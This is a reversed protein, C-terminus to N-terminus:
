KKVIKRTFIKKNTKIRFLYIGSEFHSMDIQMKDAESTCFVVKGTIDKVSVSVTNPIVALNIIGTTPNPYLLIESGNNEIVGVYNQIEVEFGCDDIVQNSADMIQWLVAYTGPSLVEGALTESNNFDNVITLPENCKNYITDLDFEDGIVTYTNFNDATRVQNEVCQVSAQLQNLNAAETILEFNNKDYVLCRFGNGFMDASVNTITLQAKDTGSYITNNSIDAFGSGTNVQWQYVEVGTSIVSFYAKDGECAYQEFPNILIRFQFNEAWYLNESPWTGVVIDNYGDNNIDGTEVTNPDYILVPPRTIFTEASNINDSYYVRDVTRSATIIEIDNDNDLDGITIDNCGGYVDIFHNQFTSNQNNELWNLSYDPTYIIDVYNDNNLDSSILEHAYGHQNDIIVEPLFNGTGDNQLYAIDGILSYVIDPDNDNDTDNFCLGYFNSNAIVSKAFSGQGDTNEFIVIENDSAFGVLLDLDGDGDTDSFDIDIPGHGQNDIMILPGFDGNGDTNEFWFLKDALADAVFLDKDNDSDIDVLSIEFINSGNEYLVIEDGFSQGSNQNEVLCIFQGDTYFVDNNGDNNIDCIAMSWTSRNSNIHHVVFSADGNEYWVVEDPDQDSIAAAIDIDGDNDFDGSCLGKPKESRDSILIQSDFSGNGDTNLFVTIKNGGMASCVIDQDNDLDFDAAVIDFAMIVEGSIVNQSSFSGSGDLNEYWAIKNDNKSSSIIDIFNDSNIDAAFLSTIGNIETTILNQTGFAGSGDNEFWVIENTLLKGAVIDPDGDNDIDASIIVTPYEGDDTIINAASFGGNGDTNEYWQITNDNKSSAVVDLDNDGDIDTAIVCAAGQADNSILPQLTFSGAADNKFWAVKHNQQSVTLFDIYNDGDLDAPFISVAYNFATSVVQAEDFAGTTPNYFAVGIKHDTITSYVIDDFGDSNFDASKVVQPNNVSSSIVQKPSFIQAKLNFFAFVIIASLLIKKM